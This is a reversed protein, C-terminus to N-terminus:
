YWNAFNAGMEDIFSLPMKECKLIITTLYADEWIKGLKIIEEIKCNTFELDKYKTRDAKYSRVTIDITEEDVLADWQTETKLVGVLTLKVPEFQHCNVIKVGGNHNITIAQSQSYMVKWCETLAVDGVGVDWTVQPKGTYPAIISEPLVPTTTLMPAGDGVDEINKGAYMVELREDKNMEITGAISVAKAGVLQRIHNVTMDEQHHITIFPKVATENVAITSVALDTATGYFHYYGLCNVPIFKVTLTPIEHNGYVLNPVRSSYNHYAKVPNKRTPVEVEEDDQSYVGFLATATGVAVITSTGEIAEEKWCLVSKITM